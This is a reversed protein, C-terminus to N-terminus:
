RSTILARTSTKRPGKRLEVAARSRALREVSERYLSEDDSLLARCRAETGIFGRLAAVGFDALWGV